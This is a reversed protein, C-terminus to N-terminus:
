VSRGRMEGKGGLKELFVLAECGCPYRLTPGFAGGGDGKFWTRDRQERGMRDRVQEDRAPDSWLCDSAVQQSEFTEYENPPCVGAVAPVCLIDQGRPRPPPPLPEPRINCVILADVTFSPIPPLLRSM